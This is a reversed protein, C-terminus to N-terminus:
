EETEEFELLEDFFTEDFKADDSLNDRWWCLMKECNERTPAFSSSGPLLDAIHWSTGGDEVGGKKELAADRYLRNNFTIFARGTGMLSKESVLEELRRRYAQESRSFSWARFAYYPAWIIGRWPQPYERPDSFDEEDDEDGSLASVSTLSARRFDQEVQNIDEGGRPTRPTITARLGSGVGGANRDDENYEVLELSFESQEGGDLNYTVGKKSGGITTGAAPSFERVPSAHGGVAPNYSSAGSPSADAIIADGPNGVGGGAVDGTTGGAQAQAPGRPSSQLGAGEDNKGGVQEKSRTRKRVGPLVKMVKRLGSAARAAATGFFRPKSKNVEAGGARSSAVTQEDSQKSTAFSVQEPPLLGGSSDFSVRGEPAGARGASSQQAFDSDSGKPAGRATEPPTSTKSYESQQWGSTRSRASLPPVFLGEKNRPTMASETSSLVNKLANNPSNQNQAALQTKLIELSKEQKTLTTKNISTGSAASANKVYYKERGGPEASSIGDSALLPRASPGASRGPTTTTDEDLVEIATSTNMTGVQASHFNKMRQGADESRLNDYGTLCESCAKCTVFDIIRRCGNRLIRCCNKTRPYDRLVERLWRKYVLKRDRSDEYARLAEHATALAPVIQVSLIQKLGFRSELLYKLKRASLKKADTFTPLGTLMVTYMQAFQRMDGIHPMTEQERRIRDGGVLVFAFLAFVQVCFCLFRIVDFRDAESF